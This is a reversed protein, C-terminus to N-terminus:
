AAEVWGHAALVAPINPPQWGAPKLVKGSKPDRVVKGDVVKALNSAQVSNWVDQMPLGLAFGVGAVGYMLDHVTNDTVVLSRNEVAILLRAHASALDERMQEVQEDDGFGIWGAPANKVIDTIFRRAVGLRLALGAAVYLSDAVADAVEVLDGQELATDLETLEEAILAMALNLEDDPVWGPLQRLRVDCARSFQEVDTWISM